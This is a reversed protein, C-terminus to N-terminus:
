MQELLHINFVHLKVFHHENSLLNPNEYL